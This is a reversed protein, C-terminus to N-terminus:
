VVETQLITRFCGYEPDYSMDQVSYPLELDFLVDTVTDLLPDLSSLTLIDLQVKPIGMQNRDDGCVARLGYVSYVVCPRVGNPAANPYSSPIAANLATEFDTITM